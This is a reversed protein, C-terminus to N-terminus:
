LSPSQETRDSLIAVPLDSWSEQRGLMDTLRRMAPPTLLEFALIAIGAGQTFEHQLEDIDACRRAPLMADQLISELQDCPAGPAMLLLVREPARSLDTPSM